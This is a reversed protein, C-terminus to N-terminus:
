IDAKVNDPLVDRGEFLGSIYKGLGQWSSMDGQYGGYEFKTPAIFVNTTIEDWDPSFLESKIAAVNNVEWQYVTTKSGPTVLPKNNYCVQKYRLQYDAPAEVVFRSQQVSLKETAVP